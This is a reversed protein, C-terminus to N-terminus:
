HKLRGVQLVSLYQREDLKWQRIQKNNFATEMSDSTTFVDKAPEVSIPRYRTNANPSDSLNIGSDRSVPREKEKLAPPKHTDDKRVVKAKNSEKFPKEPFKCVCICPTM